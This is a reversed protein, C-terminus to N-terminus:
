LYIQSLCYPCSTNTRGWIVGLMKDQLVDLEWGSLWLYSGGLCCKMLHCAKWPHHPGYIPGVDVQMSSRQARFLVNIDVSLPPVWDVHLQDAIPIILYCIHHCAPRSTRMFRLDQLNIDKKFIHLVPLWGESSWILHTFHVEILEVQAIEEGFGINSWKNSDDQHSSELLHDFM